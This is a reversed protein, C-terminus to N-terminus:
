IGNTLQECLLDSYWFHVHCLFLSFVHAGAQRPNSSEVELILYKLSKVGRGGFGLAYVVTLKPPNEIPKISLKDDENKCTELEFDM